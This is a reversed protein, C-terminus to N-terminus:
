AEEEKKGEKSGLWVGEGSLAEFQANTMSDHVEYRMKRMYDRVKFQANRM